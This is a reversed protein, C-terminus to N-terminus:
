GAGRDNQWPEAPNIAAKIAPDQRMRESTAPDTIAMAVTLANHLTAARRRESAFRDVEAQLKTAFRESESELQTAFRESESKLQSEAADARQTAAHTAAQASTTAAATAQRTFFYTVFAGTVVGIVPSLTGVFDRVDDASWRATATVLIAGLLLLIGVAVVVAPWDSGLTQTPGPSRYSM